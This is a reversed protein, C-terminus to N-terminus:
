LGLESGTTSDGSAVLAQLALYGQRDQESMEDDNPDFNFEQWVDKDISYRSYGKFFMCRRMNIRHRRPIEYRANIDNAIASGLIGGIFGGVATAMTSGYGITLRGSPSIGRSHADCERLDALATDFDTGPRHFYFYKDFEDPEGQEATAVAPMALSAPDPTWEMWDADTQPVDGDQALAPVSGCALAAALLYRKM